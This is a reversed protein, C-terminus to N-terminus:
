NQRIRLVRRQRKSSKWIRIKTCRNFPAGSAEPGTRPFGSRWRARFAKARRYNLNRFGFNELPEDVVDDEPGGAKRFM